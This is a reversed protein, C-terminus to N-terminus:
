EGKEIKWSRGSYVEDFGEILEVLLDSPRSKIEWQSSPGGWRSAEVLDIIM